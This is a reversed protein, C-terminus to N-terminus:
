ALKLFLSVKLNMLDATTAIVVEVIIVVIAIMDVVITEEKMAVAITGEIMAVAITEETLAVAIMEAILVVVIMEAILVVVIMEGISAVVVTIVDISVMDETIVAIMQFYDYLFNLISKMNVGLVLVIDVEIMHDDITQIDGEVM